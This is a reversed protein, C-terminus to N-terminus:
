KYLYDLAIIDNPNFPRNTGDTCALMWSGPDRPSKETGPIYIAGVGAQGENWPFTFGCSYRRNKYDTHRFGITHGMEHAIITALWQVDTKSTFTGKHSNLTIPTAPDGDDTPFGSSQGLIGGGGLDDGVIDIDGVGSVRKFKLRLGLANYRAIASDTAKKFLAVNNPYNMSVTITRPLSKVLNTTRYQEEEGVRIDAGINPAASLQENSLFIDNEVIYGGNIKIVNDSSFGQAEIQSLVDDPIDGSSNITKSEKKCSFLLLSFAAASLVTNLKM